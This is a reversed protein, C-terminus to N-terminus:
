RRIAKFGVMTMALMMLWMAWVSLTPVPVAQNAYEDIAQSVLAQVVAIPDTTDFDGVSAESLGQVVLDLNGSTVGTVGIGTFDSVGLAPSPLTSQVTAILRGLIEIGDQRGVFANMFQVHLADALTVGLAAYDAKSLDPQSAANGNAATAIKVAAADAIVLTELDTLMSAGGQRIADNVLAVADVSTASLGLSALESATLATTSTGGALASAKSVVAAVEALQAPTPAPTAPLTGIVANMLAQETATDIEDLGLTAFQELSVSAPKNTGSGTGALVANVANVLSQLGAQTGTQDPNSSTTTDVWANITELNDEDVGAVGANGYGEVDKDSDEVFTEVTDEPVETTAANVVEQIEEVSDVRSGDDPTDGIADIVEGINDEDVGIVGIDTFDSDTLEADDSGGATGIINVVIDALKKLAQYTDVDEPDSSGIIDNLLTTEGVEDVDGLGLVAFQEKTLQGTKTADGDAATLVENYANVIAQVDEPTLPEDSPINAILDNIPTANNADVGVIGADEYTDATPAPDTTPDYDILTTVATPDPTATIIAVIAQIKAVADVRSGDKPSDAIAKQIEALTSADAGSVGIRTLDALAITEEEGAALDIVKAVVVAFAKIKPEGLVDNLLKAHAETTIEFLGMSQYDSSTLEPDNSPDGDAFTLIEIYTTVAQQIDAPTLPEDEPTGAVVEGVIENIEDVNDADVGFV